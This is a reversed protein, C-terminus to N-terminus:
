VKKWPRKDIRVIRRPKLFQERFNVLLGLRAGTQQLYNQLQRFDERSLSSKAKLELIVKSDVFFDLINGSAGVPCERKYPIEKEKLRKEIADGYQKERAFRGLENHTDFCIGNLTYSLEPHLLKPKNNQETNTDIPINTGM